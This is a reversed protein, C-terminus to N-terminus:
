YLKLLKMSMYYKQWEISFPLYFWMLICLKGNLILWKKLCYLLDISNLNINIYLLFVCASIKSIDNSTKLYRETNIDTIIKLLINWPKYCQLHISYNLKTTSPENMMIELSM